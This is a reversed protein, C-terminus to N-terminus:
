FVSISAAVRDGEAVIFPIEHRMDSYRDHITRWMAAVEAQGHRHGLHPLIDIPAHTVFDVDDSCRALAGDIDGSYFAALFNLVRQRNLNETMRNKGAPTRGSECECDPWDHVFFAGPILCADVEPQYM